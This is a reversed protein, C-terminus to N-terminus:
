QYIKPLISGEPATHIKSMVYTNLVYPRRVLTLAERGLLCDQEEGQEDAGGRQAGGGGGSIWTAVPGTEM